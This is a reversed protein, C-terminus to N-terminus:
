RSAATSSFVLNFISFADNNASTPLNHFFYIMSSSIILSSELTFYKVPRGDYLIRLVTKSKM